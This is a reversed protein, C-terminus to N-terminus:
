ENIKAAKEKSVVFEKNLEFAKMYAAKAGSKDGKKALYDGYSDHVNAVRPNSNMNLMFHKGANEMDDAAMYKYAIMNNLGVNDPLRALGKKLITIAVDMDKEGYAYWARIMPDNSAHILSLELFKRTNIKPDPNYSQIFYKEALSANELKSVAKNYAKTMNKKDGKFYYYHLQGLHATAWNADMAVLSDSIKKAKSNNLNMMNQRMENYASLGGEVKTSPWLFDKALTNTYVGMFRKWVLKGTELGIIGSFNQRFTQIGSAYFNVTGMINAHGGLIKIDHINCTLSDEYFWDGKTTAKDYKKPTNGWSANSWALLDDSLAANFPEVAADGGTQMNYYDKVFTTVDAESIQNSNKCSILGVLALVSISLKKKLLM